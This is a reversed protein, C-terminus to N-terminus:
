ESWVFTVACIAGATGSYNWLTLWSSRPLILPRNDPWTWIFGAGNTAPISFRRLFNTPATPATSWATDVNVLSAASLSDQAQGIQSTSAAPTNAPVGLGVPSLTGATTAMEIEYIKANSTAGTHITCYAAGAAAGVSLVGAEYGAM